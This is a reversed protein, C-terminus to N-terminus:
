KDKWKLYSERDLKEEITLTFTKVSNEIDFDYVKLAFLNTTLKYLFHKSGKIDM